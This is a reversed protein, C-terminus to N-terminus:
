MKKKKFFALNKKIELPDHSLDADMEIILDDKKLSKIIKKLGYIVASGRGKKASRRYYNVKIKTELIKKKTLFNNSDDVIIIKHILNLNKIKRLLIHINEHENFTPIIIYVKRM